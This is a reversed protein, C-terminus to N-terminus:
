KEIGGFPQSELIQKARNRLRTIDLEASTLETEIVEKLDIVGYIFERLLGSFSSEM